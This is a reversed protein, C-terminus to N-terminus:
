NGKISNSKDFNQKMALYQKFELYEKYEPSNKFNTQTLNESPSTTFVGAFGDLDSATLLGNTFTLYKKAGSSDTVWVTGSLTGYDTLVNEAGNATISQLQGNYKIKLGYYSDNGNYINYSSDNFIEQSYTFYETQPTVIQMTFNPSMSHLGYPHLSDYLGLLSLQPTSNHSRFVITPDDALIMSLPSYDLNSFNFTNGLYFMYLNSASKIADNTEWITTDQLGMLGPAVYSTYNVDTLVNEISNETVSQLQGSFRIKLGLSYSNLVGLSSDPLIKYTYNLHDGSLLSFMDLTITPSYNNALAEAINDTGVTQNIFPYTPIHIDGVGIVSNYWGLMNIHYNSITIPVYGYSNMASDSGFYFNEIGDASKVGGTTDELGVFGSGGSSKRDIRGHQAFCCLNFSLIAILILIKKM